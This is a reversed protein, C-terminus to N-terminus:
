VVWVWFERCDGVRSRIFCLWKIEYDYGVEILVCRFRWFDSGCCWLVLWVLMLDGYVGLFRMGVGEVGLDFM